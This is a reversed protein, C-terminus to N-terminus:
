RPVGGKKEEMSLIEDFDRICMWPLDSMGRLRRMLTWVHGRQESESNGYFGTMCWMTSVHSEVKVDIHFRSYSLLDVSIRASWFLCLGGSQGVPEVVLKGSYGLKIRIREMGQLGLKTEMLFFVDPESERKLCQLSQVAQPSGLGRAIWALTRM